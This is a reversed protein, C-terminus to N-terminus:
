PPSFPKLWAISSEESVSCFTLNTCSFFSMELYKSSIEWSVPPARRKLGVGLCVAAVCAAACHTRSRVHVHVDRQAAGCAERRAAHRAGRRMGRAAGGGAESGEPGVM